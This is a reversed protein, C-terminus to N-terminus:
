PRRFRLVFRDSTGRRTAAARPSDNWDRTDSPNRLFDAEGDLVFGAATVEAVLTRQEIRHLSQVDRLGSGDAASHDVIGYVGGPRLANFIARNMAPRDVNLWVTDHYALVFLVADLGQVEPPIPADFERDIRTIHDTGLRALRTELPGRAFRDLVFANNQVWVHGGDGVVRALLEATYGGGAFLEVVRQGPAVGFFSLMEAPRRGGDLARDEDTRAPVDVAARVAASVVVTSTGPAPQAAPRSGAGACAGLVLTVLGIPVFRNM